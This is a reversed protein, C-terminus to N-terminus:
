MISDRQSQLNKTGGGGGGFDAAGLHIPGASSGFNNNDPGSYNGPSSQFDNIYDDFEESNDDYLDADNQPTVPAELEKMWHKLESMPPWDGGGKWGWKEAESDGDVEGKARKKAKRKPKFHARRLHAAANYYAGYRKEQHCSKCRLLPLVPVPHSLGDKPEV